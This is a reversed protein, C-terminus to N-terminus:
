QDSPTGAPEASRDTGAPSASATLKEEIELATAASISGRALLAGVLFAIADTLRAVDREDAITYWGEPMFGGTERYYATVVLLRDNGTTPGFSQGGYGSDIDSGDQVFSM